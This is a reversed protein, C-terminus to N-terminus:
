REMLGQKCFDLLGSKGGNGFIQTPQIVCLFCGLCQGDLFAFVHQIYGNRVAGSYLMQFGPINDGMLTELPGGADYIIYNGRLGTETKFHDRVVM